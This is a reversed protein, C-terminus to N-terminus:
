VPGATTTASADVPQLGGEVIVPVTEGVVKPELFRVKLCGLNDKGGLSFVGRAGNAAWEVFPWVEDIPVELLAPMDAVNCIRRAETRVVSEWVVAWWRLYLAHLGSPVAASNRQMVGAEMSTILRCSWLQLHWAKDEQEIGRIDLRGRALMKVAPEYLTPVMHGHTLLQTAGGPNYLNARTIKDSKGREIVLEGCVESNPVRLREGRVYLPLVAVLM